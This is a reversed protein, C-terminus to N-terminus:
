LLTGVCLTDFNLNLYEIVCFLSSIILYVPIQGIYKM